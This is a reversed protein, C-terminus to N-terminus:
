FRWGLTAGALTVQQKDFFIRQAKIGLALHDTLSMEAALAVFGDTGRRSDLSLNPGFVVSDSHWRYLGAEGLLRWSETPAVWWRQSLTWGDASYPYNDELASELTALETEPVQFSATVDGLDLYGAGISFFSALPLDLTVSFAVRDMDYDTIQVNVDDNGMRRAFDSASLSTDASFIGLEARLQQFPNEQAAAEQAPVLATGLLGACLLSPLTRGRKNLLTWRRSMWLGSMMLLMFLGSHGGGSSRATVEGDYSPQEMGPEEPEEPEEIPEEPPEEPQEPEEPLARSVAGPDAVAGNREGDADNPGGDEIVLQVCFHGENLGASWLNSGPPPCYGPTGPSSYLRNNDDEVFTIWAGEMYKRYVAEAPIAARQPIVISAPQGVEPLGQMEFDFIGGVPEFLGDETLGDQETIDDGSLEAGGSTSIMAFRGLSCNLGPECEMMYATEGNAQEPLVNPTVSTDLYNPIGNQNRDGFGESADSIGNGNSDDSASLTPVTPVVVFYRQTSTNAGGSDTVNLSAQYIGSLLEAPDFVFTANGPNGDSDMLRNDSNSWDLTHSDGPNPDNIMATISVPGGDRAVRLRPDGNQQISLTVQPPVNGAAIVMRHSSKVGTNINQIDPHAPDYDSQLEGSESHTDDLRVVLVEDDESLGDDAINVTIIARTEGTDFTVTGGVLDHDDTTATSAATDIAYPVTLPYFPSQGNLEVSFTATAGEATVQDKSMSVLPRLYLTQAEETRNGKRDEAFWTIQHEGPPLLLQQNVLGVVSPSCCANGDLNDSALNDLAAQLMENSADPDLGLLAAFPVPTFLANANLVLDAPATLEPPDVDRYDNPDNPDTGDLGEQYDSVGDGDTDVGANVQISFPPLNTNAMGDTVTIQINAHQGIAGQSPTGSLTGTLTNFSLWSPQGTISFTLTDGDADSATPTFEYLQGEIASTPPAGGITPAINTGFQFSITTLNGALDEAEVTISANGPQAATVEITRDAGSGGLIINASPVVNSDSSSTTLELDAPDTLNDDVTFPLAGTSQGFPISQDAIDDLTPATTDIILTLTTSTDGSNGAADTAVATLAHEGESLDDTELRWDGNTDATTSGIEGDVDSSLVITASAEATGTIEPAIIQTIGDTDNAGSDSTSALSLDAPPSPAINDHTIVPVSVADATNGVGDEAVAVLANDTNQVLTYDVSWTGSSVTASALSLNDDPEGDQDADVYFHIVIGEESHSGSLTYEDSNVSIAESPTLVVPIEPATTDLQANASAPTSENNADDIIIVEATLEGDALGSVNINTLTQDTSSIAVTDTVPTGGGDSTITYEATTGVEAGNLTLSINNASAANIQSPSISVTPASPAETDVTHTAGSSFSALPNGAADAATSGTYDLRLEGTGSINTVTVSVNDGSSSSLSGLTASVNGTTTTLTFDALTLNEVTESLSVQFTVESDNANTGSVSITNIVPATDDLAATDTVESASNGAEDTLTVSLTLTGDPLGSVDIGTIQDTATALSGSGTVTSGGGSSTIEFAYTADVEAGAFTFSANAATGANFTDNDFTVTHGNPAATDLTATDTVAAANNGESDSLIVSLTLTGDTLGSLDIGTVHDTASGITGNGTISGGNNSTIEYNFTAGIEAGAFTFSASAATSANFTGNDFSISHGSPALDDIVTISFVEEYTGGSNDTTRIRVSKTDATLGAANNARLTNGSVNFSGNDTDGTGFALTYTFTDDTDPDTTNLTGVTADEGDSQNVTNNSLDIDTPPNNSPAADHWTGGANLCEIEILSPLTNTYYTNNFTYTHCHAYPATTSSFSKRGYEKHDGSLSASHNGDVNLHGNKQLFAMTSAVSHAEPLASVSTESGLKDPKGKSTSFASFADVQSVPESTTKEEYVSTQQRLRTQSLVRSSAHGLPAAAALLPLAVKALSNLRTKNRSSAM